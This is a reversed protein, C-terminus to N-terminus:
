SIYDGRMLRTAVREQQRAKYLEHANEGRENATATAEDVVQFEVMAFVVRGHTLRPASLYEPPLEIPVDAIFNIMRYSSGSFENKTDSRRGEGEPPQQLQARVDTPLAAEIDCPDVLNNHSQDPVIHNFPFVNRTLWTLTSVLDQQRPVVIRFRLKDFVTAAVNDRKALLKSVISTRTKRSGYFAVMPMGSARMADAKSTIYDNALDLLAQESIPTRFKLDAAGLHHMLHMLKLTMCAIAQSRRFGRTDSAVLFVYRVDDPARLETPVRMGLHEELYALAENYLYRLRNRDEARGLDLRHLALLRDVEDTSAFAAKHWDIVSTGALLLRMAEVDALALRLEPVRPSVANDLELIDYRM